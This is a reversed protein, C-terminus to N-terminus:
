VLMVRVEGVSMSARAGGADRGNMLRLPKIAEWM